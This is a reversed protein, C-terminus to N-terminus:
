VFFVALFCVSFCIPCLRGDDESDLKLGKGQFSVGSSEVRTAALRLVVDDLETMAVPM